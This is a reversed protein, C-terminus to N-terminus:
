DNVSVAETAYRWHLGAATIKHDRCSECIRASSRGIFEAADKSTQFRQGTEVCVVARAAPNDAGTLKGRRGLSMKELDEQSHKVGYNPNNAGTLNRRKTIESLRQKTEQSHHKGYFPNKERAMVGKLSDSIHKRNEDTPAWGTTACGGATLNYGHDADQTQYKAILEVELREADEETLETYLIEHRFADWGHKQIAAYFFPCRRYGNGNAWRRTPKQSTIGIYKKGNVRNEHMYVCWNTLNEM